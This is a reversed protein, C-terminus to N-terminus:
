IPMSHPSPQGHPRDRDGVQVTMIVTCTWRAGLAATRTLRKAQSSLGVGVIECLPRLVRRSWYRTSRDGTVRLPTHM